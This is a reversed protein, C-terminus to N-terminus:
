WLVRPWRLAADRGRIISEGKSRTRLSLVLQTNMQKRKRRVVPINELIWSSQQLSLPGDNKPRDPVFHCIAWSSQVQRLRGTLCIRSATLIQNVTYGVLFLWALSGSADIWDEDLEYLISYRHDSRDKNWSRRVSPSFIQFLIPGLYSVQSHSGHRLGQSWMWYIDMTLLAVSVFWWCYDM